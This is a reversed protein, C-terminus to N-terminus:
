RDIAEVGLIKKGSNRKRRRRKGLYSLMRDREKLFPGIFRCFGFEIIPLGISTDLAYPIRKRPEKPPSSSLSVGDVCM